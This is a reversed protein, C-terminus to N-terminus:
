RKRWLTSPIWGFYYIVAIQIHAAVGCMNLNRVGGSIEAPNVM